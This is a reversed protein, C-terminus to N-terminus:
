RWRHRRCSRNQHTQLSRRRHDLHRQLLRLTRLRLFYRKRHSYNQRLQNLRQPWVGNRNRKQHHTRSKVMPLHYRSRSIRRLHRHYWQKSNRSKTELRSLLLHTQHQLYQVSHLPHLQLQHQRNIKINTTHLHLNQQTRRTQRTHLQRHPPLPQSPMQRRSTSSRNRPPNSPATSTSHIDEHTSHYIIYWINRMNFLIDSHPWYEQMTELLMKRMEKYSVKPMKSKQLISSSMASGSESRPSLPSKRQEKSDTM